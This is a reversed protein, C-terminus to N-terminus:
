EINIKEFMYKCFYKIRGVFSTEIRDKLFFISPANISGLGYLVYYDNYEFIVISTYMKKPKVCTINEFTIKSSNTMTYYLSNDTKKVEGNFVITGFPKMEVTFNMKKENKSGDCSNLVATDYLNAWIKNHESYYPIDTYSTIDLIADFINNILNPDKNKPVLKIIEALYNPNRKYIENQVQSIINNESRTLVLKKRNGINRIVIEENELKELEITTIQNNFLSNFNQAILTNFFFLTIVEIFIIKKM